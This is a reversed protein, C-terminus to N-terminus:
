WFGSRPYKRQELDHLTGLSDVCLVEGTIGPPMTVYPDNMRVLRVKTDAKYYEKLQKLLEPHIGNM